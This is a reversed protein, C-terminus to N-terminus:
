ADDDDRWPLDIDYHKAFSDRAEDLDGVRYGRPHDQYVIAIEDLPPKVMEVGGSQLPDGPVLSRDISDIEYIPHEGGPRSSQAVKALFTGLETRGQRNRPRAEDCWQVYSRWLLETTYFDSWDNFWPTGHKSKWLFGRQLVALWWREISPLSLTTQTRLGATRPVARVEFASIDRHQLEYLMAALGGEHNMQRAIAAFYDLQGARNDAVDLVFYRREDHSSPVVWNNNSAMLVHLRNRVVLVNRKKPEIVLTGETILGKLTGEHQKDGAFFAEDAFLFVCDYLHANFKGTLHVAQTIHLAHQALLKGVFFGLIGKGVGKGGRLVIAVQGAEEPCQVLRALWNMLYDYHEPDNSCIVCRIHAKLLEWNGPKPEVGFGRWLNLCGKPAAGSPDFVVVGKYERRKPHRLWWEALNQKTVTLKGKADIEFTKVKRNLYLKRFDTFAIRDLVERVEFTADRRWYGVWVQGAEYLVFYSSNFGSLAERTAEILLKRQRELEAKDAPTLEDEGGEGGEDESGEDESGPPPLQPPPGGNGNDGGNGEGPSPDATRARSGRKPKPGPPLKIEGHDDGTETDGSTRRAQWGLSEPALDLQRCLWLAADIADIVAGFELVADIATLGRGNPDGHDDGFDRIGDPAFSLDEEYNRDLAAPTVRWTRKNQYFKAAPLMVPVWRELAALAADNVRTFFTEDEPKRPERRAAPRETEPPTKPIGGAARLLEGAAGILDRATMANIVPLAALPVDLPSRDPWEYPRMTDPHIGFGVFQQGDALIEVHAETGDPMMHVATKLKTFPEEARYCLLLKPARGIRHLPTPGLTSEVLGAIEKVLAAILVDIDIGILVGCLLGTNLAM